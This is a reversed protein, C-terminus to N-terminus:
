QAICPNINRHSSYTSAANARTREGASPPPIEIPALSPDIEPPASEDPLSHVGVARLRSLKLFSDIGVRTSSARAFVGACLAVTWREGAFGHPKQDIRSMKRLFSESTM